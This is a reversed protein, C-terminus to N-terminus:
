SERRAREIGVLRRMVAIGESNTLEKTSRTRGKTVDSVIGRFTEEDLQLAQRKAHLDRAFAPAEGDETSPGSPPAGTSTTKVGPGEVSSLEEELWTKVTRWTEITWESEDGHEERLTLVYGDRLTAPLPELLANVTAKAEDLDSSAPATPRAGVEESGRDGAAAERATRPRVGASPLPPPSSARRPRETPEGAAAMQDALSAPPRPAMPTVGSPGPLLAAPADASGLAPSGIPSAGVALAAMDAEFDLVPLVFKHTVTKTADRPNPRKVAKQELRLKGPLVSRGVVEALMRAMEFSGGLEVAAYFSHTELRWLGIGPIRALMLSVRTTLKCQRKDPDCLCPGDSIEEHEGDCRRQCRAGTWDEYSQSLSMQEPPVVVDLEIAETYLEWQGEVPATDTWAKVEGGYLAAVADLSRRSSSTFRFSGLKSPRRKGNAAPVQEGLRIRGTEHLRRQLDIIPSM